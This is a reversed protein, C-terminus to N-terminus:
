LLGLLFDITGSDAGFYEIIDTTHAGKNTKVLAVAIHLHPFADELEIGHTRKDILCALLFPGTEVALEDGVYEVMEIRAMDVFGGILRTVQGQRELVIVFHGDPAFQALVRGLIYACFDIIVQLGKAKSM